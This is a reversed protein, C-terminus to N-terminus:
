PREASVAKACSAAQDGGEIPSRRRLGHRAAVSSAHDVWATAWWSVKGDKMVVTPSLSSLPRKEPAIANAEGQVLGLISLAGVKQTFGTM